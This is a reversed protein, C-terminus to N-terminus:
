GPHWVSCGSSIIRLREVSKRLTAPDFARRGKKHDAPIELIWGPGGVLLFWFSIRAGAQKAFTWDELTATVELRLGFLELSSNLFAPFSFKLNM